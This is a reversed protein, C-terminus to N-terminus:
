RVLSQKALASLKLTVDKRANTLRRGAKTPECYSELNHEYVLRFPHDERHLHDRRTLDGDQSPDLYRFTVNYELAQISQKREVSQTSRGTTQEKEKESLINRKDNYDNEVENKVLNRGNQWASGSHDVLPREFM